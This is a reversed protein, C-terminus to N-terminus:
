AAKVFSFVAVAEQLKTDKKAAIAEKVWIQRARLLGERMRPWDAKLQISSEIVHTPALGGTCFELIETWVAVHSSVDPTLDLKTFNFTRGLVKAADAGWSIVEGVGPYFDAAVIGANVATRLLAEGGKRTVPDEYLRRVRRYSREALIASAGFVTM